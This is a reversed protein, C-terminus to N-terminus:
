TSSTRLKGTADCLLPIMMTGSVGMLIVSQATTNGLGLVNSGVDIFKDYERDKISESITM